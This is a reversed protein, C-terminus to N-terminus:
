GFRIKFALAARDNSFFFPVEHAHSKSDPAPRIPGFNYRGGLEEGNAYEELDAFRVGPPNEQVFLTQACPVVVKYPFMRKKGQPFYEAM